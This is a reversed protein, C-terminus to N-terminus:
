RCFSEKSFSEKSSAQLENLFITSKVFDLYQERTCLLSQLLGSNYGPKLYQRFDSWPYDQPRAFSQPNLHVYRAVNILDETSGILRSGYRGQCLHGVEGHQWNFYRAYASGLSRMTSSIPTAGDQRLILHYHNRMLCYALVSVDDRRTYEELKLLFVAYDENSLFIEAKRNGRNFIHYYGGQEFLRPSSPM